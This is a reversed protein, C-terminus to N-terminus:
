NRRLSFKRLFAKIIYKCFLIFYGNKNKSASIYKNKSPLINTYEPLSQQLTASYLPIAHGVYANMIAFICPFFSIM